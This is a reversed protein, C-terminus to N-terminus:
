SFEALALYGILACGKRSPIRIEAGDVRASFTGLLSLELRSPSAM